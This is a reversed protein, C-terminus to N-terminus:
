IEVGRFGVRAAQEFRDLPEVECFMLTLNASLRAVAAM